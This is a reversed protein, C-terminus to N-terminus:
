NIHSRSSMSRDNNGNNTAITLPFLRRYLFELYMLERYNGRYKAIMMMNLWVHRDNHRLSWLKAQQMYIDLLADDHTRNWTMLLALMSDFKAREGQLSYYWPVSPPYDNLHNREMRTMRVSAFLCVASFVVLLVGALSYIGRHWLRTRLSMTVSDPIDCHGLRLLILFIAFHIFSQWFPYELNLHILLPIILLSFLGNIQSLRFAKFIMYIWTALMVLMGACAVIGGQFWAYLLENHPHTIVNGYTYNLEPHHLVYRSFAYEFNGYGWGSWPKELIMQVTIRLINWRESNSAAYDRAVLYPEGNVLMHLHNTVVWGAWGALFMFVLSGYTRWPAQRGILGAILLVIIIAGLAGARSQNLSLVFILGGTVAFYNWVALRSRTTLQLLFACGTGTAVISGLLNVQQFIGYPRGNNRVWDYEMVSAAWAPSFTQLLGLISQCVALVMVVKLVTRKQAMSLHLRILVCWLLLAVLFVLWGPSDLASFLWPLLVMGGGTLMMLSPRGSPIVVHKQRCALCLLAIGIWLIVTVNFPLTIGQGGSNPIYVCTLAVTLLAIIFKMAHNINQM